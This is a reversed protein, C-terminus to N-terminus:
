HGPAFEKMLKRETMAIKGKGLHEGATTKGDFDGVAKLRKQGDASHKAEELLADGWAFLAVDAFDLGHKALNAKRKREDWVIRM